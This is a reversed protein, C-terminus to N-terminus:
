TNYVGLCRLTLGVIRLVCYFGRSLGDICAVQTFGGQSRCVSRLLIICVRWASRISFMVKLAIRVFYIINFNVLCGFMRSNKQVRKNCSRGNFHRSFPIKKGYDELSQIRVVQLVTKSSALAFKQLVLCCRVYFSFAWLVRPKCAFCMCNCLFPRFCGRCRSNGVFFVSVM